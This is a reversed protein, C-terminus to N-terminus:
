YDDSYMEGSTGVTAGDVGVTEGVVIGVATGLTDNVGVTENLGHFIFRRVASPM